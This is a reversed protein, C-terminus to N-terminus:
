RGLEHVENNSAPHGGVTEIGFVLFTDMYKYLAAVESDIVDYLLALSLFSDICLFVSFQPKNRGLVDELDHSLVGVEIIFDDANFGM